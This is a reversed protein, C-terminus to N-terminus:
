PLELLLHEASFGPGTASMLCRGRPGSRLVEELVFLVTPSSMNGHDRLVTRTPEFMPSPLNLLAEYGLIVKAGGPHLAIADLSDLTWGEEALSEDVLPRLSEALLAPIQASLRLKFGDETIDWGTLAASDDLLGSRSRVVRALGGDGPGSDAGLVVAAGGDAFIATGIVNSKDDDGLVFTLSCFEVAVLLVHEYGARVLDAARSLGAAGGVCGLGWLPLRAASSRIGMRQMLYTDLSPTSIGTSSVFIVADIDAPKLGAGALAETVLREALDLVECVYIGNKEAFSRPTMYWEVPRAFRRHEIEANDFVRLMTQSRELEPFVSAAAAKATAQPIVHAPGGTAIARLVPVRPVARQDPTSRTASDHPLTTTMAPALSTPM